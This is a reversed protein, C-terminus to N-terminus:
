DSELGLNWGVSNFYGGLMMLLLPNISGAVEFDRLRKGFLKYLLLSPVASLSDGGSKGDDAVEQFKRYKKVEEVAYKGYEGWDEADLYELVWKQIRDSQEKSFVNRIAIINRAIAALGLDVPAMRGNEIEGFGEKLRKYIAPWADHAEKIIHLVCLTAAKRESLKETNM